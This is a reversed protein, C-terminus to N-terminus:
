SGDVSKIGLRVLTILPEEGREGRLGKGPM